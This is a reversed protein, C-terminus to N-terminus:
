CVLLAYRGCYADVPKSISFSYHNYQYGVILM